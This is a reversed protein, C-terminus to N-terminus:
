ETPGFSNKFAARMLSLALSAAPCVPCPPSVQVRVTAKPLSMNKPYTLPIHNESM